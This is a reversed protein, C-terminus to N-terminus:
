TRVTKERQRDKEIQGSDRERSGLSRSDRQVAAIAVDFLSSSKINCLSLFSASKESSFATSV